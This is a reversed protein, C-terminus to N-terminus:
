QDIAAIHKKAEALHTDKINQDMKSLTHVMMSMRPNKKLADEHTDIYHWYLHNFPCAKPGEKIKPDYQCTECYNSMKHIYAASSIYPKTSMLGGDAYLGMGMVNPTVVWDFSDVYMTNFWDNLAKPYVGILQAYNSLIMLRQIHHNYGHTITEHIVQHLCNLETKADWFFRPLKKQHDFYNFQHYTPHKLYVLRIYERWGLIQRIFGEVSQLDVIGDQYMEVAKLIVELPSLLGLNLCTSLMTHSVKPHNQIMVDQYDGFTPLQYMMVYELLILADKRSVPYNFGETSGPHHPYLLEIHSAIKSTIDDMEFTHHEHLQIGKKYPKRNDSDFSYKGGLPKKHDDLLLQYKHRMFVYFYEMKWSKNQKWLGIEDVSTLALIDDHYTIKSLPALMKIDDYDFPKFMHTDQTNFVELQSVDEVYLSEIPYTKQYELVFHKVSSQHLLLRKKHYSFREYQSKFEALIIKKFEIDLGKIYAENLQHPLLILTSM